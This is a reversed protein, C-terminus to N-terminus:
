INSDVNETKGFNTESKGLKETMEETIKNLSGLDQGLKSLNNTLDDTFTKDIEKIAKLRKEIEKIDNTIQKHINNNLENIIDEHQKTLDKKTNVVLRNVEKTSYRLEGIKREM